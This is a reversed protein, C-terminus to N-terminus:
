NQAIKHLREQIEELIQYIRRTSYNLKIGIHRVKLRDVYRYVYVRDLIEKSDRLEMAKLKLRYLLNDMLNRRVEIEKEIENIRITYNLFKDDSNGGSPEKSPDSAGPLVSYYYKAKKDLAKEYEKKALNFERRLEEYEIFLEKIEVM